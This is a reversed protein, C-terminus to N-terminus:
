TEQALLVNDVFNVVKMQWEEVDMVDPGFMAGYSLGVREIGLLADEQEHDFICLVGRYGQTEQDSMDIGLKDALDEDLRHVEIQYRNDLRSWWVLRGPDTIEETEWRALPEVGTIDENREM